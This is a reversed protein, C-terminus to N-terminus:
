FAIYQSKQSCVSWFHTVRTNIFNSYRQVNNNAWELIKSSRQTIIYCVIKKKKKLDFFLNERLMFDFTMGHSIDYKYKLLLHLTLM